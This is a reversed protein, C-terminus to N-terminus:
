HGTSAGEGTVAQWHSAMAKLVDARTVIGVLRGDRTVPLRRLRRERFLRIASSLPEAVDITTAPKSMIQRVSEQELHQAYAAPAVEQQKDVLDALRAQWDLLDQESLVGVLEGAADVVPLGSVQRLLLKRLAVLLSEDDRVTALDRTMVDGVSYAGVVRAALARTSVLLVPGDFRRVIQDAVSGLVWRAPGTRGHTSMVILGAYHADAAALIEDVPTGVRAETVITLGNEISGARQRLYEEARDVLGQTASEDLVTALTATSGVARVVPEEV